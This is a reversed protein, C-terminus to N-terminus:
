YRQQTALRIILLCTQDDTYKRKRKRTKKSNSFTIFKSLYHNKTRDFVDDRDEIGKIIGGGKVKRCICRTVLVFIQFRHASNYFLPCHVNLCSVVCCESM